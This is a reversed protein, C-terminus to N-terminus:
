SGNTRRTITIHEDNLGKMVESHVFFFTSFLVAVDHNTEDSRLFKECTDKIDGVEKALRDAFSM